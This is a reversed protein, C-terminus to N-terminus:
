MQQMTNRNQIRNRQESVKHVNQPKNNKVERFLEEAKNLANQQTQGNHNKDGSEDFSWIRRATEQSFQRPKLSNSSRAAQNTHSNNQVSEVKETKTNIVEVSKVTNVVREQPKNNQEKTDFVQKAENLMKNQLSNEAPVSKRENLDIDGKTEDNGGDKSGKINNRNDDKEAKGDGRGNYIIDIFDKVLDVFWM